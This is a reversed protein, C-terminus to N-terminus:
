AADPDFLELDPLEHRIREFDADRTWLAARAGVAAVAIEVDTLPVAAGTRRLRAAVLGVDRWSAQGLGAWRFSALTDWVDDADASPTGALLEAAVPGCVVVTDTELLEGLRAAPGGLGM